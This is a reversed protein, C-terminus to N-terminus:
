QFNNLMMFGLLNSGFFTTTKKKKKLLLAKNVRENTTPISREPLAHTNLDSDVEHLCRAKATM